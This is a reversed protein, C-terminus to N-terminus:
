FLSKKVIFFESTAQEFLTITELFSYKDLKKVLILFESKTM